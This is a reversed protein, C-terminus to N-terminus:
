IREKEVLFRTIIKGITPMMELGKRVWNLKQDEKGIQYSVVKLSLFSTKTLSCALAVGLSSCDYAVLGEELLYHSKVIQLVSVSDMYFTEGSLLYGRQIYRTTMLYAGSEAKNNLATDAVFFAPQGPIQGFPAIKPASFDVDAAYYRDAIFLDGQKLQDSFSAVSGISFVLYPQYKSILASVIASSLYNSQGTAVVITDEKFISGLYANVDGFFNITAKIEMKTKFYLIDDETVGIIAIM